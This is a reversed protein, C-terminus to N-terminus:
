QFLEVPGGLAQDKVVGAFEAYIAGGGAQATMFFRGVALVQAPVNAGAAVPCALLPVNLVRRARVGHRSPPVMNGGSVAAYPVFTATYLGTAAAATPNGPYLSAWDARAFPVYGTAPEAAAYHVARAYSWLPGYATATLGAPPPSQPALDAVTRLPIVGAATAAASQAAPTTTMWWGAGGGTYQKINIDPPAAGPDCGGGYQDFRANLASTLAAPFPSSVRVAGGTLSTLPVSGACVFPLVFAATQQAGSGAQGPPTLPDLVFSRASAGDPNLNLLNYGVGRRFGYEVLENTVPPGPNLRSAAASASMACIALPTVQLSARGAVARGSLDIQALAPHFLRMFFTQVAGQADPLAASDVRAYLLAAPAGAAVGADIWAAAAADPTASFRLAANSWSFTGSFRSRSLEATQRAQSLAAAVGAAKGNLQRAAALAVADAMNQLEVQRAYLQALDLAIGIFGLLAVMLLAFSIFLAGRQRRAPRGPCRPPAITPSM